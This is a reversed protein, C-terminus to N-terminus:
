HVRKAGGWRLAVAAEINGVIVMSVVSVDEDEILQWWMGVSM